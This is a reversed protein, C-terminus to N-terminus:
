IEEQVRNAPSLEGRSEGETFIHEVTMWPERNFLATPHAYMFDIASQQDPFKRALQADPQFKLDVADLYVRNFGATGFEILWAKTTM